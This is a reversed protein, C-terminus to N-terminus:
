PWLERLAPREVLLNPVDVLLEARSKLWGSLENKGRKLAALAIMAQTRGSAGAPMLESLRVRNMVHDMVVDWAAINTCYDVELTQFKLMESLSLQDRRIGSLADYAGTLDQMELLSDALLLRTSVSIPQLAGLRQGLLAKALMASEQWRHQAHRLVALHHLAQLKVNRFLSFTQVTREINREAEEFNGAAILVPSAAAVRSGRASNMSLWFWLSGIAIIALVKLNDPGVMFCGALALGLSFKLLSALTLDRRVRNIAREVTIM